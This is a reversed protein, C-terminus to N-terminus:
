LRVRRGFCPRRCCAACSRTWTPSSYRWLPLGWLRGPCGTRTSQWGWCSVSVWLVSTVALLRCIPSTSVKKRVNSTNEHDFCVPLKNFPIIMM